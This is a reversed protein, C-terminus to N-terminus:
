NIWTLPDHLVIVTLTTFILIELFFRLFSSLKWRNKKVTSDRNKEKFVSPADGCNSLIESNIIMIYLFFYNYDNPSTKEIMAVTLLCKSTPPFLAGM